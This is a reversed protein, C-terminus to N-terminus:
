AVLRRIREVMVPVRVPKVVYDTAGARLGKVETREDEDATMIVTRFVDPRESRLRELVSWGDLGPLDLDLLVVPAEGDSDSELLAELAERGDAYGHCEFGAKSLQETLVTRLVNDDEVIYVAHAEDELVEPPTGLTANSDAGVVGMSDTLFQEFSGSDSCAMAGTQIQVSPTFASAALTLEKRIDAVDTDAVLIAFYGGELRGIISERDALTDRIRQFVAKLMLDAAGDGIRAELSSIDVNVGALTPRAGEANARELVQAGCALFAERGLAGSHPDLEISAFSRKTRMVDFVASRIQEGLEHKLLVRDAVDKRGALTQAVDADQAIGIVPLGSWRPRSRLMAIVEIYEDLDDGTDALLLDPQVIDVTESMGTLTPISVVNCGLDMLQSEVLGLTAPDEAIALVTGLAPNGDHIMASTTAILREPDVSAPLIRDAGARLVARHADARGRGTVVIPVQPLVRRLEDVLEAANEAISGAIAIGAFPYRRAIGAALQPEAVTNVCVGRFRANSAATIAYDPDDCILLLWPVTAERTAESATVGTRRRDESRLGISAAMKEVLSHLSRRNSEDLPGEVHGREFLLEAQAALRELKPLSMESASERLRRTHRLGLEYARTMAASSEGPELQPCVADLRELTQKTYALGADSHLRSGSRGRAATPHNTVREITRLLTQITIPKELRASWWADGSNSLREIESNKAASLLVIPIDRTAPNAKITRATQMGDMVPMIFDLIIVDPNRREALIIAENGNKAAITRYGHRRLAGAITRCLLSDDDAILVIGRDKM